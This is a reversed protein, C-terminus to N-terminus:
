RAIVWAPVDPGLQGPNAVPKMATAAPGRGVFGGRGFAPAVYKAPTPGLLWEVVARTAEAPLTGNAVRAAKTLDIKGGVSKQWESFDWPFLLDNRWTRQ